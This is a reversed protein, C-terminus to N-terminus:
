VIQFGLNNNNLILEYINLQQIFGNNIYIDPHSKTIIKISEEVNYHYYRM